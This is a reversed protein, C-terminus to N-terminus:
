RRTVPKNWKAYHGWSKNRRKKPQLCPNKFASSCKDDQPNLLTKHLRLYLRPFPFFFSFLFSSLLLISWLFTESFSVSTCFPTLFVCKIGNQGLYAWGGFEGPFDSTIGKRGKLLCFYINIYIFNKWTLSIKPTRATKLQNHLQTQMKSCKSGTLSQLFACGAMIWPVQFHTQKNFPQTM